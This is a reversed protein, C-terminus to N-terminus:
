AAPDAPRRAIWLWRETRVQLDNRRRVDNPGGTLLEDLAGLDDAGLRDAVAGRIRELAGAAYEGVVPPQPPTLDIAIARDIELVLGARVLRPGWDSGMTPADIARDAALLEHARAEAASGPTGDPLFRPFGALEVVSLLGRPRIAAAVGALTRDPDSLHHLSASAWALDVPELPPVGEDLDACLSSVRDSLGLQEARRRLRDLAEESSDIAVVQADPFHELLGFTGTGTGAGLDVIRRVPEDVLRGLDTRVAHLQEAIVEADLDLLDVGGQSAQHHSAQHHSAQHHSAQHDSHAHSM